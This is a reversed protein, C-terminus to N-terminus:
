LKEIYTSPDKIDKQEQAIREKDWMLFTAQNIVYELQDLDMDELVIDVWHTFREDIKM